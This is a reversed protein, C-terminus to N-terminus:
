FYSKMMYFVALRNLSCNVPKDIILSKVLLFKGSNNSPATFLYNKISPASFFYNWREAGHFPLKQHQSTLLDMTLPGSFNIQASPWLFTFPAPPQLGLFLIGQFIHRVTHSSIYKKMMWVKIISICFFRKKSLLSIFSINEVLLATFYYNQYNLATFIYNQYMSATFFYNLGPATSFYIPGLDSAPPQPSPFLLVGNKLIYHEFISNHNLFM